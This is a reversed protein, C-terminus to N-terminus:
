WPTVFLLPLGGREEETLLHAAFDGFDVDDIPLENSRVHQPQHRAQQQRRPRVPRQAPAAGHVPHEAAAAAAAAAAASAATEAAAEAAAEAQAYSVDARRQAAAAMAAARDQEITVRGSPLYADAAPPIYVDDIDLVNSQPEAAQPQQVDRQPQASAPAGAADHRAAPAGGGGGGV